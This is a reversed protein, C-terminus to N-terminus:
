DHVVRLPSRRGFLRHIDFLMLVIVRPWVGTCHEHFDCRRSMRYFLQRRPRKSNAVFFAPFVPVSLRVGNDHGSGRMTSCSYCTSRCSCPFGRAESMGPVALGGEAEAVDGRDLFIFPFADVVCTRQGNVRFGTNCCADQALKVLFTHQVPPGTQRDGNLECSGFESFRRGSYSSRHAKRNGYKRIGRVQVNM